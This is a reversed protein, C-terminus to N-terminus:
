IRRNHATYGLGLAPDCAIWAFHFSVQGNWLSIENEPREEELFEANVFSFGKFEQQNINAIFSKDCPTLRAAEDTFEPDFNDFSRKSRQQTLSNATLCIHRSVVCHAPTLQLFQARISGPLKWFATHRVEGLNALAFSGFDLQFGSHLSIQSRYGALCWPFFRSPFKPDHRTDPWPVRPPRIRSNHSEITNVVRIQHCM